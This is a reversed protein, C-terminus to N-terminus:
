FHLGMGVFALASRKQGCEHVPLGRLIVFGRGDLVESLVRQLRGGLTPLPFGERRWAMPERGSEEIRRTASEIEAVERDGLVHIWDTRSAMEAGHWASPGTIEPPLDFSPM